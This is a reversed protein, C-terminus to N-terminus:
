FIFSVSREWFFFSTFFWSDIIPWHHTHLQFTQYPSSIVQCLTLFYLVHRCTHSKLQLFFCSFKLISCFTLCITWTSKERTTSNEFTRNKGKALLLITLLFNPAATHPNYARHLANHTKYNLTAAACTWAEPKQWNFFSSKNEPLLFFFHWHIKYWFNM